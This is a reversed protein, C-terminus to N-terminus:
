TPLYSQWNTEYKDQTAVSVKPNRLSSASSLDRSGVICGLLHEQNIRQCSRTCAMTKPVFRFATLDHSGRPRSKTFLTMCCPDVYLPFCLLLSVYVTNHIQIKRKRKRERKRVCVGCLRSCARYFSILFFLCDFLPLSWIQLLVCACNSNLCQPAAMQLEHRKKTWLIWIMLNINGMVYDRMKHLLLETDFARRFDSFIWQFASMSLKQLM